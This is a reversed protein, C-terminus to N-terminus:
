PKHRVEISEDPVDLDDFVVPILRRMEQCLPVMVERIQPHAAHATRLSFVHRWERLNYTAVIETKLSNPLVSRAKQPKWGQKRLAQYHTEASEMASLWIADGDDPVQMRPTYVGVPLNTWLPKIFQIHGNGYDCYRTSEQSYAALRHRVLEHSVGRDIIFRVSVSEHELVSHHGRKIIKRVFERASDETIAAESKYCTRGAAEIRKLMDVGTMGAKHLPTLIECSPLVVEM